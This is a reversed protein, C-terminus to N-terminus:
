SILYEAGQTAISIKGIITQITYYLEKKMLYQNEDYQWWVFDLSMDVELWSLQVDSPLKINPLLINLLNDM